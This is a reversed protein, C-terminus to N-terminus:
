VGQAFGVHKGSAASSGQSPYGKEDDDDDSNDTTYYQDTEETTAYPGERTGCVLVDELDNAGEVTPTGGDAKAPAKGKASTPRPMGISKTSKGYMGQGAFYNAKPPAQAVMGGNPKPDNAADFEDALQLESILAAFLEEFNM